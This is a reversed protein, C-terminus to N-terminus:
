WSYGGTKSRGLQCLNANMLIKVKKALDAPTVVPGSVWSTTVVNSSDSHQEWVEEFRPINNKSCQSYTPGVWFHVVVPRHDSLSFYLHHIANNSFLNHWTMNCFYRDLWELITDGGERYNVWTFCDGRFGMDMLGCEDIAFHFASIAGYCKPRGRCKEHSNLIENFDGVILWFVVDSGRLHKLLNM